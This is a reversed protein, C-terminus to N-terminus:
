LARAACGVEGGPSTPHSLAAPSPRGAQDGRGQPSLALTLTFPHPRSTMNLSASVDRPSPGREHHAQRVVGDNRGRGDNRRLCSGRGKGPTPAGRTPARGSGREWQSLALTLATTSGEGVLPNPHPAGGWRWWSTGGM